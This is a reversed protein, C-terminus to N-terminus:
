VCSRACVSACACAAFEDSVWLLPDRTIFITKRTMFYAEDESAMMLASKEEMYSLLFSTPRDTQGARIQESVILSIANFSTTHSLRSCVRPAWRNVPFPAARLVNPAPDSVRPVPLSAAAVAITPSLRCPCNRDIRSTTCLGVWWVCMSARACVSVRACVSARSCVRMYKCHLIQIRVCSHVPVLM